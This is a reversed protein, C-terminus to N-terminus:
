ETAIPPHVFTDTEKDYTGGVQAFNGRFSGSYSTQVWEGGFMGKMFGIGIMEQEEGDVSIFQNDLVLVQVVVGNEDIQAFHAM